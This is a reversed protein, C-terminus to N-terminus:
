ESTHDVLSALKESTVQDFVGAQKVELKNAKQFKVLAERTRPGFIGARWQIASPDMLKQKILFRQLQEIGPGHSGISASPVPLVKGRAVESENSEHDQEIRIIQVGPFLMGLVQKVHGAKIDEQTPSKVYYPVPEARPHNILEYNRKDEESIKAFEVQSLNYDEGIKHFRIGHIPSINSAGCSVGYHVVPEWRIIPGNPRLVVQYQTKEADSLKAFETENLDFDEGVKHYRTGRLPSENCGDCTVYPHEVPVIPPPSQARQEQEQEQLTEKETEQEQSTEKETETESKDRNEKHTSEVKTKQENGKVESRVNVNSTNQSLSVNAEIWIKVVAGQEKVADDFEQATTITISDGDEDKWKLMLNSEKVFESIKDNFSEFNGDTKFRRIHDKYFVKFTSAM